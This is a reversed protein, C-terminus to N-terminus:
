INKFFLHSSIEQELGPFIQGISAHSFSIFYPFLYKQAAELAWGHIPMLHDQLIAAGIVARLKKNRRSERLPERDSHMAEVVHMKGYFAPQRSRM